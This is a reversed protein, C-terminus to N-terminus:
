EAPASEVPVEEAAPSTKKGKPDLSSIKTKAEAASSTEAFETAVRQYTSLAMDTNGNAEHLLALNMLTFQAPYNDSPEELIQELLSIAQDINKDASALQGAANRALNRVDTFDSETIVEELISEAKENEGMDIYCIATYYRSLDGIKTGEYEDATLQFSNLSKDLRDSDSSFDYTIVPEEAAAEAGEAQEAPKPTEETKAPEVTGHYLELGEAFATQMTNQRSSSYNNWAYAGLIALCIVVLGSVLLKWNKIIWSSTGELATQIPGKHIIEKRTLRKAAL